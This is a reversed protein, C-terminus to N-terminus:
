KLMILMEMVGNLVYGGNNMLVFAINVKVLGKYNNLNIGRPIRLDNLTIARNLMRLKRFVIQQIDHPMKRSFNRQFIKEAEGDKFSRIM